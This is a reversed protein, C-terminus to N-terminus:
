HDPPWDRTIEAKREDWGTRISEMQAFLYDFYEVTLRLRRGARTDPGVADVGDRVSSEMQSLLRDRSLMATHWADTQVVYVDRRSGREREKGILMAHALYRIAGSIAAPSVGLSETLETSTMRGDDDALLQAFVRAALRPMGADTLVDGFREVYLRVARDDRVLAEAREDRDTTGDELLRMLPRYRM